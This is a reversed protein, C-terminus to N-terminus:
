LVKEPFTLAVRAKQIRRLLASPTKWDKIEALDITSVEVVIPAKRIVMEYAMQRKLAGEFNSVMELAKEKALEQPIPTGFLAKNNVRSFAVRWQKRPSWDSVTRSHLAVAVYNGAEDFGEPTILIQTVVNQGEPKEEKPVLELYLAKGVIKDDSM